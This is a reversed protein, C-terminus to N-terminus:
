RQYNLYAEIFDYINGKVILEKSTHNLIDDCVKSKFNQNLDCVLGGKISQRVSYRMYKDNYKNKPEDEETRLSQLKEM